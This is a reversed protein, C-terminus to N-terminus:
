EGFQGRHISLSLPIEGGVKAIGVRSERGKVERVGGVGGLCGCVISLIVVADCWSRKLLEMAERRTAPAVEFKFSALEFSIAGM